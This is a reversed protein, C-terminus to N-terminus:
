DLRRGCGGCFAAGPARPAGCQGCFAAGGEPAPARPPAARPLRRVPAKPGSLPQSGCLLAAGLLAVLSVWFPWQMDVSLPGAAARRAEAKVAVLLLLLLAAGAVGLLALLANRPRTPLLAAPLAALVVLAAAGARWDAPVARRQQGSIPDGVETGAALDVGSLEAVPVGACSVKVWPMVFLIGALVFPGLALGRGLEPRDTTM